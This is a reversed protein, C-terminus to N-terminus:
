QMNRMVIGYGCQDLHRGTSQATDFFARVVVWYRVKKPICNFAITMAVREILQNISEVMAHGGATMAKSWCAM